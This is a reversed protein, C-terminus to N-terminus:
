PFILGYVRTAVADPQGNKTCLGVGLETTRRTQLSMNVNLLLPSRWGSSCIIDRNESLDTLLHM